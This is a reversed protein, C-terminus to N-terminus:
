EQAPEKLKSVDVYAHEGGSQKALRVLFNNADRQAGTGFEITHIIIGAGLREIRALQRTSLKPDDADTLLFIVDPHMRIAMMVAEEHDTGGDSEVSNIFRRVEAKNQETGFALRGPTGTPNFARPRENYFVLQFQHITDLKDISALLEVKAAALAKGGSGGMSGSHDLVYVFKSGEAQVGFVSIQAKEGPSFV